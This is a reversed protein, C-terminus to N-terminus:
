SQPVRDLYSEFLDVVVQGDDAADGWLDRVEFQVHYTPQLLASRDGHGISDPFPWRERTRHLVVGEKGRVYGPFRVHGAVHEDRVRVREGVEFPVRDAIAARGKSHPPNALKFPAGLAQNLAERSIAGAEVLLSATAIVYREYYTTGVHQRVDLREVAHRVEDISFLGLHDCAVFMLSYALHEWDDKFVPKYSLSDIRHPVQGFGQFGGLDHFGNM